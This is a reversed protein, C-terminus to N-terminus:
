SSPHRTGAQHGGMQDIAPRAPIARRKILRRVPWAVVFALAVAVAAAVGWLAGLLSLGAGPGVYALAPTAAFLAVTGVILPGGWRHQRSLSSLLLRRGRPSSRDSM